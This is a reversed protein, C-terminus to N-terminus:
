FFGPANVQTEVFEDPVIEEGDTSSADDSQSDQTDIDMAREFWKRYQKIIEAREEWVKDRMAKVKQVIDPNLM